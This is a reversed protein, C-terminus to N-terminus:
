HHHGLHEIIEKIEDETATRIDIVSGDFVLNLGALPHNGDLVAHGEEIKTVTYLIMDEEDSELYGEIQMGVELEDPLDSLAETVLLDDNYGGFAEQASLAVKFADGIKKGELAAEIPEFITDYRGHLYILPEHGEDVLNGNEDTVHYDLTVITNKTVTM